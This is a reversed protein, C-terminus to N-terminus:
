SLGEWFVMASSPSAIISHTLAKGSSSSKIETTVGKPQMDFTHHQTGASAGSFTFMDLVVPLPYMDWPILDASIGEVIWEASAGVSTVGPPPNVGVSVVQNTRENRMSVYGHNSQPACVLCTIVDGPAVPFNAIQVAGSPFWETWAWHTVTNGNVTVATGAQLVQGNTFGDLGVWFGVTQNGPPEPSVPYVYPQTWQGYVTNAPEAPSYGLSSTVVVAGAWGKPAFEPKDRQLPNRRSMIEDYALEAKVVKTGPRFAKQFARYLKPETKPDPRRPFGYHLLESPKAAFPDFGEPPPEFARTQSLVQKPDLSSHPTSM